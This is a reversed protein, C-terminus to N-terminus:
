RTGPRETWGPMGPSDGEYLHPVVAAATRFRRTQYGFFVGVILVTAAIGSVASIPVSADVLLHIALSAAVGGVIANICAIMTAATLLTQV